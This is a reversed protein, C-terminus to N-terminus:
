LLNVTEGEQARWVVPCDERGSDQEDLCLSKDLEYDGARIVVEVSHGSGLIDRASLAARDLTRFPCDESGVNTDDGYPAVFLQKTM